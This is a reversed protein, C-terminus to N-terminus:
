SGLRKIVEFKTSGMSVRSDAGDTMIMEAEWEGLMADAAIPYEYKLFGTSGDSVMTVETDSGSLVVLTGTPDAIRIVYSVSPTAAAGDKDTIEATIVACEGRKYQEPNAM